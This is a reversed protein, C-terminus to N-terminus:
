LFPGMSCILIVQVFFPFCNYSFTVFSNQNVCLVHIKISISLPILELYIDTLKCFGNNKCLYILVFNLCGLELLQYNKLVYELFPISTNWLFKTTYECKGQFIVFIGQLLICIAANFFSMKTPIQAINM